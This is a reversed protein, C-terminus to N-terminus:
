KFMQKAVNFGMLQMELQQKQFQQYAQIQQPTLFQQARTLFQQDFQEREATFKAINEDTLQSLIDLNNNADGKNFTSTWNFKNREDSLAQVLQQQQAPSL